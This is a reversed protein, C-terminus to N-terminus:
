IREFIDKRKWEVWYRLALQRVEDWYEKELGYRAKLEAVNQLLLQIYEKKLRLRLTNNHTSFEAEIRPSFPHIVEILGHGLTAETAVQLGDNFCSIPPTSGAYSVVHMSGAEAGLLERAYLGMKVGLLSYIGVHGHLELSLVAYRWEQEGHREIAIPAIPAIDDNYYEANLPLHKIIHNHHLM